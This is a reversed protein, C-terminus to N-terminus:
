VQGFSGRGLMELVEYRYNIHDNRIVIYDGREDDCESEEKAPLKHGLDSIYYIEPFKLVEEREHPALNGSYRELVVHPRVPLELKSWPIDKTSMSRRHSVGEEAIRSENALNSLEKPNTIAVSRAAQLPKKVRKHLQIQAEIQKIVENQKVTKYKEEYKPSLGKDMVDVKTELASGETRFSKTPNLTLNKTTM